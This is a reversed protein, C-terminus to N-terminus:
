SEGDRLGGGQEAFGANVCQAAQSVGGQDGQGESGAQALYQRVAGSRAMAVIQADNLVLRTEDGLIGVAARGLIALVVSVGGAQVLAMEPEVGAALSTVYLAVFILLIAPFLLGNLRQKMEGTNPKDATGATKGSLRALAAQVQEDTASAMDDTATHDTREAAAQQEAM